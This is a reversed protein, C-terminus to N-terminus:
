VMAWAIVVFDEADFSGGRVALDRRRIALQGHLIMRVAVRAVLVGDLPELFGGLRELNEVVGVLARAVIAEAVGAQVALVAGVVEVVDFVDEGREAVQEAVQEAAAAAPVADVLAAVNAAVYREREFFRGAADRFGDLELAVVRQM